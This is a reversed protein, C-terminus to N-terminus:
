IHFQFVVFFFCDFEAFLSSDELVRLPNVDVSTSMDITHEMIQPRPLPWVHQGRRVPPIMHPSNYVYSLIYTRGFKSVSPPVETFVQVREGSVVGYFSHLSTPMSLNENDVDTYVGYDNPAQVNALFLM